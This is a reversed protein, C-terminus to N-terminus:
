KADSDIKPKASLQIRPHAALQGFYERKQEVVSYWRPNRSVLQVLLEIAEESRGQMALVGTLNYDADDVERAERAWKRGLVLDQEAEQLRM